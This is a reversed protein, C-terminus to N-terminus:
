KVLWPIIFIDLPQRTGKERFPFNHCRFAISGFLLFGIRYAFDGFHQADAVLHGICEHLAPLELVDADASGNPYGFAGEVTPQFWILRCPSSEIHCCDLLSFCFIGNDVPIYIFLSLPFLFPVSHIRNAFCLTALDKYLEILLSVPLDDNRVLLRIKLSYSIFLCFHPFFASGILM